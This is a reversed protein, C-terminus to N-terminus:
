APLPERIIFIERETVRIGGEAAEDEDEDEMRDHYGYEAFGEPPALGLDALASRGAPLPTWTQSPHTRVEFDRAYEPSHFVGVEASWFGPPDLIAYVIRHSRRAPRADRMHEAARLLAAVARRGHDPDADPGDLLRQDVPLHWHDCVDFEPRRPEPFFGAFGDAWADLAALEAAADLPPMGEGIDLRRPM